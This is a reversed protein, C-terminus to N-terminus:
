LEGLVVKIEMTEKDRLVTLALEQGPTYDQILRTLSNKEDVEENNVKVIIDGAKLGATEAPSSKAVALRNEKAEGLLVAGKTQGEIVGEALGLSESLDVYHVGLYGRIVESSNKLFNGVASDLFRAINDFDVFFDFFAVLFSDLDKFPHNNGDFAAM